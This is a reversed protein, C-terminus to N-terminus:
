FLQIGLSWGAWWHFRNSGSTHDYVTYPIHSSSLSEDALYMNLSPGTFLGLNESFTGTYHFRWQIHNSADTSWKGDHNVNYYVLETEFGNGNSGIPQYYGIGIATQWLHDGYFPNYGAGIVNYVRETGIRIGSNVFGTESGWFDVNFRGRKVFSLLGVPTGEGESAFNVMGLQVGDQRGAINLVGIQLGSHQGAINVPSVSTGRVDGTAVNLGGAIMFGSVDGALNLAGAAMFGKSFDGAVNFGGAFLAGKSEERSINAGGSVMVGRNFTRTVNFGGSFIAGTSQQENWNAGGSLQLGGVDYRNGNFIKGIEFGHFAGNYGGIINYSIRSSSHSDSSSVGPIFSLQFIADPESTASASQSFVSQFPVLFCMMLLLVFLRLLKLYSYDSLM